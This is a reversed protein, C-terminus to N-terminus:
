TVTARMAAAAEDHFLSRARFVATAPERDAALMRLLFGDRFEDDDVRVHFRETWNSVSVVRDWSFRLDHRRSAAWVQFVLLALVGGIRLWLMRPGQLGPVIGSLFYLVLNMLYVENHPRRWRLRLYDDALVLYAGTSPALYRSLWGGRALLTVKFLRGPPADTPADSVVSRRNASLGALILLVAIRTARRPLM